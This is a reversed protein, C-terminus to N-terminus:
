YKKIGRVVRLLDKESGKRDESGGLGIKVWFRM